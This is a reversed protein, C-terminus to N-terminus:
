VLRLGGMFSERVSSDGGSDQYVELTVFKGSSNFRFPITFSQSMFATSALGLELQVTGVFTSNPSYLSMRIGRTGVSSAAWGVHGFFMVVKDQNGIPNDGLTLRTSNTATSITMFGTNYTIENWSIATWTDDAITQETGIRRVRFSELPPTYFTAQNVEMYNFYPNTGGMGTWGSVISDLRRQEAELNNLRLQVNGEDLVRPHTM